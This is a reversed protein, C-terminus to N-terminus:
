LSGVEGQYSPLIAIVEAEEQSQSPGSSAPSDTPVHMSSREVLRGSSCWGLLGLLSLNSQLLGSSEHQWKNRVPRGKPEFVCLLSSQSDGPRSIVGSVQDLQGPQEIPLSFPHRILIPAHFIFQGFWSVENTSLVSHDGLDTSQVLPVQARNWKSFLLIKIPLLNAWQKKPTKIQTECFRESNWEAVKPFSMIKVYRNYFSEEINTCIKLIPKMSFVLFWERTCFIYKIICFIYKADYFSECDCLPFKSNATFSRFHRQHYKVPTDYKAM